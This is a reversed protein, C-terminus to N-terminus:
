MSIKTGFLAFVREWRKDGGADAKRPDPEHVKIGYQRICCTFPKNSVKGGRDGAGNSPSQPNFAPAPPPSSEPPLNAAVRKQNQLQRQLEASKHEELNGWLKFLQERLASLEEPQRRLDCADLGTLLQAETNDIVVWFKALGGKSKPDVEELQLAFRWEWLKTGAYRNLTGRDEDESDSESDESYDSLLDAEATKRWSSFNELKHPRFDVVRANTRYKACVFPLTLTVEQQDISTTWQAPEIISSVLTIPEDHSECKILENLGLREEARKDQEQVKWQIAERAERRRLKGNVKTEGERDPKRKVGGSGNSNNGAFSKQQKKKAKEYDLKRRVAEKLNKDCTEPDNTQLIDVSLQGKSSTRDERLFGELNNANRGFKIQLNRLRVWQGAKVESRVYSAHPEFCTVQMSRRGFPGPWGKAEPITTNVYGYPDGDRGVSDKAADWSFKYFNENETYDSVWLTTMDLLEYPEKVVHVIVDCFQGTSVSSLTAFKDKVRRSQNVQLDFTAADPVVDKDISYFLWPVYENEKEGPPRDNPRQLPLLAGKASNPPKPIESASYIHIITSRHSLLSVESRYLQVKGSIIIVVDGASPQPMENQRRFIVIDLSDAVSDYDQTSQDYITMTAKWDSGNTPIPARFDKVLGIVNALRGVQVKHGHIDKITTYGPPLEKQHSTAQGQAVSGPLQSPAM